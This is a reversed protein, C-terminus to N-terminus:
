NDGYILKGKLVFQKTVVNSIRDSLIDGSLLNDKSSKRGSYFFVNIYADKDTLQDFMKKSFKINDFRAVHGYTIEKESSAVYFQGDESYLTTDKPTGTLSVDVVITEKSKIIRDKAKPSLVIAIEFPLVTISDKGFKFYSDTHIIDSSDKHKTNFSSTDKHLENKVQRTNTTCSLLFAPFLLIATLLKTM